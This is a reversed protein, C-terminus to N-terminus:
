DAGLNEELENMGDCHGRMYARHLLELVVRANNEWPKMVHVTTADIGPGMFTYSETNGHVKSRFHFDGCYGDPGPEPPFPNFIHPPQNM